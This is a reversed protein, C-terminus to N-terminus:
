RLGSTKLDNQLQPLIEAQSVKELTMLVQGMWHMKIEPLEFIVCEFKRYLCIIIDNLISISFDPFTSLVLRVIMLFMEKNEKNGFYAGVHIVRIKEKDPELSLRENPLPLNTKNPRIKRDAKLSQDIVKLQTCDETYKELAWGWDDVTWTLSSDERQAYGGSIM